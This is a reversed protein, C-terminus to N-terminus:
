QECSITRLEQEIRDVLEEKKQRNKEIESERQLLKSAIRLAALVAIKKNDVIGSKESIEKMIMDVLLASETIRAETEDSLLSYQDSFITVKYCKSEQTM